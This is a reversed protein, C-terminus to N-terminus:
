NGMTMLSRWEKATAEDPLWNADAIGKTQGPQLLENSKLIGLWGSTGDVNRLDASANPLRQMMVARIWSFTFAQARVLDAPDQHTASPEIALTWAAGNGRGQKWLGETAVRNSPNEEKAGAMLLAPIGRLTNLDGSPAGGTHYRVFGITRQPLHAALISAIGAGGSHGWFLLPAQALEERGSDQALRDLFRRFVETRAENYVASLASGEGSITNFRVGVLAANVSAAFRRWDASGSANFGLGWNIVVIIARARPVTSPLFLIGDASVGRELLNFAGAIQTGNPMRDFAKSLEGDVTRTAMFRSPATSHFMGDPRPDRVGGAAVGISWVFEIRDGNPRGNFTITRQGDGSRCKFTITDAEIRGDFIPLGGGRNSACSSVFGELKAGDTRLALEWPFPPGTGEVRWTGGVQQQAVASTPGLLVVMLVTGLSRTVNPASLKLGYRELSLLITRTPWFLLM